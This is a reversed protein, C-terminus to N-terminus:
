YGGRQKNYQDERRIAELQGRSSEGRSALLNYTYNNTTVSGSGGIGFDSLKLTVSSLMDDIQAQSRRMVEGLQELFGEGWAKANEEGAAKVDEDLDHLAGAISDAAEKAEDRYLAKSIRDAAAQKERYRDMYEVFKDDSAALLANAAMTGEEVSMDRLEDLFEAPIDGRQKVRELADAYEALQRNQESLDALSFWEYSAGDLELTNKTFLNGFSALKERMKDQAAAVDDIKDKAAELLETYADIVTKKNNEIDKQLADYLKREADATEKLGELYKKQGDEAQENIYDQKIKERQKATKAERLKQEYEAQAKEREIRESEEAYRKESELMPENMADFVKQVNTRNDSILGTLLESVDSKGDTIGKKLGAIARKSLKSGSKWADAQKSDIGIVYGEGFYDGLKITEKAPSHSDQAEAAAKVAGAVLSSAMKKAIGRCKEIGRAFGTGYDNGLKEGPGSADVSAAEEIVEGVAAQVEPASEKLGTVISGDFEGGFRAATQVKQELTADVDFDLLRQVGSIYEEISQKGDAIKQENGEIKSGLFDAKNGLDEIESVIGSMGSGAFDLGTLEEAKKTIEALKDATKSKDLYDQSKKFKEWEAVLKQLEVKNELMGKQEEKFAANSNELAEVKEELEPIESSKETLESELELASIESLAKAQKQLLEVTDEHIGNKEEEASIYDGYHDIFWQECDKIDKQATALEEASGKNEDLKGKLDKWKQVYEDTLDASEKAEDLKGALEKVSDGMRYYKEDAKELADKVGWIAPSAATIGAVTLGFPNLSVTTNLLGQAITAANTAGKYGIMATSAIGVWKALSLINEMLVPDDFADALGQLMQTGKDVASGLQEDIGEYIAIGLAEAASGALTLKGKLNDLNREAMEKTTGNSNDIAATLKKFDTESANVIALLGSMGEQGALMTAYQAKQSDSLKSFKDRLEGITQSLPKVSGDAKSISIRLDKIAAEAEGTPKALRSLVARLATGAQGGKIGSNAMLGTAVAVDEISYKLSGAVPAVYKFTEGMMSVNTNANSSAAALVDAFHASDSAKLGFATLADTVIDSVEGLNEGSAAALNMIGEIGATMEETKWGAMAMYQFAEGAQTASFVTTEGMQKAKERLTEMDEASALSISGVKSMQAEFDSGAKIIEKGLKAIGLSAAVTKVTQKLKKVEDQADAISGKLGKDDGVIKVVVDRNKAM